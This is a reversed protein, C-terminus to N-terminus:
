LYDEEHVKEKVGKPYIHKFLEYASLFLKRYLAESDTYEHMKAKGDKKVHLMGFRDVRHGAEEALMVYAICQLPWMKCPASTAKLDILWNEGNIEVLFDCQGTILLKKCYLREECLIIRPENCGRWYSEFAELYKEIGETDWATRSGAIAECAAHVRTGRNAANLLVLPDIGGRDIFASTIDTVRTYTMDNHEITM